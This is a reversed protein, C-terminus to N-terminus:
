DGLRKIMMNLWRMMGTKGIDRLSQIPHNIVGVSFFFSVFLKEIPTFSNM